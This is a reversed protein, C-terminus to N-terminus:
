ACPLQHIIHISTNYVYRNIQTALTSINSAYSVALRIDVSCGIYMQELEVVARRLLEVDGIITGSVPEPTPLSSELDPVGSGSYLASGDGSTMMSVDNPQGVLMALTQIDEMVMILAYEAQRVIEEANSLAETAFMVTYEIVSINVKLQETTTNINFLETRLDNERINLDDTELLLMEFSENLYRYNSTLNQSQELLMEVRRHASQADLNVQEARTSAQMAEDVETSYNADHQAAVQSANTAIDQAILLSDQVFQLVFGAFRYVTGTDIQISQVNNSVEVIHEHVSEAYPSLDILTTRTTTVQVNIM